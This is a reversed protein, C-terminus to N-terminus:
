QLAKIEGWTTTAKGAATVNGRLHTTRLTTVEGDLSIDQIQYYYVVNPKASTDKWEYVSRESTTGKGAVYHVKTFEGDRKESRLINFGANNLESETVWRVVIEGTDKLREPRFSSLSVPLPGGGRFGPTGFDDPDGYYTNGILDAFNTESALVWAKATTGMANETGSTYRRILSSRRDDGSEGNMPFTWKPTETRTRRDGDLNGFEDVINNKTDTLKIYLGVASFVQETRATTGLATRHDKDTWLNVVRTSPFHDPSSNRGSTTVILVTQNPAITMSKLTITADVRTTIAKDTADNEITLKWGNLNIAQTMSSNYLEIWQPLSRRGPGTDLMIESFTIAGDTLVVTAGDKIKDKVAGNDYGPTGGNEDSKLAKRDYGVGTYGVRGLHKEGTGGGANKRIYVFGEKFDRGHGEIVNGHPAGTAVLPWQSTAKADDVYIQGGVVDMFHSSAKLKDHANRLILNFKGDAPLKLNSNVYYLTQVGTLEQDDKAVAANRGAAIDTIKPDTNVLLIVSNGPVKIDKDHFNVLSTDTGVATVMSLHYNKLSKEASDVNRIEVWDETDGPGNGVENIIFPNRAVASATLIATSKFHEAWRSDYIWRNYTSRRQSAKWSGSANGNPIKKVLEARNAVQAKVGAYDINRYMSIINTPTIASTLDTALTGTVRGSQGHAGGKDLNWGADRRNSVQDIDIAPFPSPRGAIFTLTWGTVDIAAGTTNYLEIFQFQTQEGVPAGLDLGWLIESIVVTRSNKDDTADGNSLGIAGGLDFFEELDPLSQSGITAFGNAAIMGSTIRTVGNTHPTTPLHGTAPPPQVIPKAKVAITFNLAATGGTKGDSATYTYITSTMAATPTGYLFRTSKKFMLGAPLTPLISYSITDGDADTAAPLTVGTLPTGVMADIHAISKDGFTPANNTPDTPVDVSFETSISRNGLGDNNFAAVRFVHRGSALSTVRQTIGSGIKLQPRPSGDLTHYIIYGVIPLGGTDSPMLWNLTVARPDTPVQTARLDRPESPPDAVTVPAKPTSKAGTGVSNVAAVEFGYEGRAIAAPTTYSAADKMIKDAGTPPYTVSNGAANTQYVMYGTIPAGFPIAPMHSTKTADVPATWNTVVKNSNVTRNLNGPLGGRDGEEMAMVATPATPVIPELVTINFPLEATAGASDTAIFKYATKASAATATGTITRDQVDNAVLRLGDPLDPTITYPQLEDGEDDTAKPLVPTTYAHGKWIVIDAIASGTPFSPPNNAVATITVQITHTASGGNGDMVTVTHSMNHAKLPTGTIMGTATNLMLGLAAEDVDWSYVLTDGADADTASVDATAIATGVVGTISTAATAPFVPANNAPDTITVQIMHTASATGDTVTVTHEMTHAKLPTGTIMGTATNLALGLAAEDVDWSYALTDGADADTASVDAATIATGVMGTISTAATAKFVPAANAAEGVMAMAAMTSDSTDMYYVPKADTGSEMLKITIPLVDLEGYKLNGTYSNKGGRAASKVFTVPFATPTTSDTGKIVMEHFTDGDVTVDVASGDSKEGPTFTVQIRFARTAEDHGSIMIEATPKTVVTAAKPPPVTVTNSGAVYGPDISIMAETTGFVLQVTITVVAKNDTSTDVNGVTATAAGEPEIDVYDAAFAPTLTHTAAPDAKSDFTAVITYAGPTNAVAKPAALMVNGVNLPPLTFTMSSGVNGLLNDRNGDVADDDISVFVKTVTQAIGSATVTAVYKKGGSNLLAVPAAAIAASAAFTGDADGLRVEVDEAELAAVSHSFTLEVRFDDRAQVHPANTTADAALTPDEPGSYEALTVTPGGTAAMVPMAAFALAFILILSTLSFTMKLSSM